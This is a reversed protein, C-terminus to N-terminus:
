MEEYSSSNAVMGGTETLQGGRPGQFSMVFNAFVYASGRKCMTFGGRSLSSLHSVYRAM